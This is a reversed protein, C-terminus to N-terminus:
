EDETSAAETFAARTGPRKLERRKQRVLEERRQLLEEGGAQAGVSEVLNSLVPLPEADRGRLM